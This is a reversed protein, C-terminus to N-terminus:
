ERTREICRVASGRGKMSLLMGDPEPGVTLRAAVALGETRFGERCRELRNLPSLIKDSERGDEAIAMSM